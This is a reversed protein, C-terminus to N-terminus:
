GRYVGLLKWSFYGRGLNRCATLAGAINLLPQLFRSIIREPRKVSMNPYRSVKRSGRSVTMDLNKGKRPIHSLRMWLQSGIIALDDLRGPFRPNYQKRYNTDDKFIRPASLIYKTLYSCNNQLTSKIVESEKLRNPWNDWSLILNHGGNLLSFNERQKM